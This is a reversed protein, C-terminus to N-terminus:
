GRSIIRDAAITLILRIQDPGRYWGYPAGTYHMALTEIHEAAGETSIDVVRGRIGFYRVPRDPDVINVAVRPDREINRIKQFGRASNILIHTGDTDVWTQTLHPSGDPMRTALFCLAPRRLLTLLDDPLDVM